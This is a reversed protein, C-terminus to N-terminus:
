TNPLDKLDRLIPVTLVILCAIHPVVLVFPVELPFGISVPLLIAILPLILTLNTPHPKLLQQFDKTKLFIISFVLFSVWEMTISVSSLPCIGAGYWEKSVPWLLQIGKGTLFDSTAHQITALLYPLATKGYCMLFPLSILIMPIVSHAPGRHEFYAILFDVDPLIAFAFILPINVKENLVQASVKGAM